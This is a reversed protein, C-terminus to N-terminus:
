RAVGERSRTRSMARRSPSRIIRPTPPLIPGVSARRAFFAMGPRRTIATARKLSAPTRSASSACPMSVMAQSRSSRAAMAASGGHALTTKMAPRLNPASASLGSVQAMFACTGASTASCKWAERMTAKEVAQTYGKTGTVLWPALSLSAGLGGPSYALEHTPRSRM